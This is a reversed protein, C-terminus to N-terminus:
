KVIPGACKSPRPSTILTSALFVLPQSQSLYGSGASLEASVQKGNRYYVTIKGGIANRNGNEAILPMAGSSCSKGRIPYLVDGEYTAEVLDLEGGGQNTDGYYLTVPKGPAALYKSNLGVNCVVYDIDGDGDFDSGAISNWSGLHGALGSGETANAFGDGTNRFFSVPGWERTIMLDIRGDDDVDTWLAGTVLGAKQLRPARIDAVDAFKGGENELLFSDPSVPYKGAIVRGVVFLDLDGDRDDSVPGDPEAIDYFRNAELGHFVQRKGSPWSVIVEAVTEDDGLGFHLLPENASLVGTALTLYKAQTGIGFRNSSSGALWVLVRNGTDSNNRCVTLPADFNSYHLDLDGDRDLDALASGASM